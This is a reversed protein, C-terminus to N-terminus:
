PAPPLFRKLFEVPDYSRGDADRVEFHLHPAITMWNRADASRSTQGMRGVKTGQRIRSSVPVTSVEALHGYLTFFKAGTRPWVHEIVVHKGFDSVNEDVIVEALTGDFVCFVDDHPVFTPEESEFDTNTACNTFIVRTTRGTATVNVPAIDCGRHFRKGCDRTWGPKGYDPNVRTRAFFKEPADFLFHNATPWAIRLHEDNPLTLFQDSM